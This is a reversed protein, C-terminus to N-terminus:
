PAATTEQEWAVYGMAQLARLTDQNFAADGPAARLTATSRWSELATRHADLQTAPAHETIDLDDEDFMRSRETRVFHSVSDRLADHDGRAQSSSFAVADADPSGTMAGVLSRGSLGAPVPQGLLDLITPVVDVAGTVQSVTPDAAARMTPHSVILPVRLLLPLLRGHGIGGHEMLEEGHDSTLVVLTEERRGTRDLADLLKGVCHDAARIEGDYLGILAELEAKSPQTGPAEDFRGAAVRPPILGEGVFMTDYPPPPQYPAHTQYTHAFLFVPEDAPQAELWTIAEGFGAACEGTQEWWTSFGQQLGMLESVFYSGTFAATRWGAESLHEALTEIEDSMQDQDRVVGHEPPHLGTLLTAHSPATWHSASTAREFRVGQAALADIRPSTPRGYGYASLHDPRLTDLSILILSNGRMQARLAAARETPQPGSLRDLWVRALDVNRDEGESRYLDNIFHLSLRRRGYDEVVMMLTDTHLAGGPPISLIGVAAGDLRAELQAHAGDVDTAAGQVRLRYRGPRLVVDAVLQQHGSVMPGGLLGGGGDLMTTRDLALVQELPPDPVADAACATLLLSFTVTRM